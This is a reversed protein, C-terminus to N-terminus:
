KKLRKMVDKNFEDQLKALEVLKERLESLDSSKKIVYPTLVLVLNTKDYNTIKEKFLWGLLPIDGLLPIKSLSDTNKDRVLGGIIVTEGNNVIIETKVERKTTNPRGDGGTGPKVDELRSEVALNVKQDNSIRPKVKLTLGISERSYSNRTLDTSSTGAVSSTLVSLTEGVFITSEKNDLALISPESVLNAAGETALLNFAAGLALGETINGPKIYGSLASSLAITPGGLNAAFSYLGKSNVLGGELGYKLGVDTAKADSIEMIKAVIYVQQKDQDLTKIIDSIDDFDSKSGIIIISNTPDDVSISPKVAPPTYVRTAVIGNIAPLVTKAESNKLPFVYVKQEYLNDKSDLKKIIDKTTAVNKKNSM